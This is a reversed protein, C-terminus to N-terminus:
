VRGAAQEHALLWRKIDLLRGGRDGAFGGLGHRAVVRHCPVVLPCPNARCAGGVARPSSGLAAALEGYTRTSRPAIAAILRWVRRQFPTGGLQVPLDIRRCSDQFYAVFPAALWPPPAPADLADAALVVRTLSGGSAAGDARWAGSWVGRWHLAIRGIPTDMALVHRGADCHAPVVVASPDFPM